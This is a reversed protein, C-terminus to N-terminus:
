RGGALRSASVLSAVALAVLPGGFILPIFAVPSLLGGGAATSREAAKLAFVGYICFLGGFFLCIRHTWCLQMALRPSPHWLRFGLVMMWVGGVVPMVIQFSLVLVWVVRAGRVSSFGHGFLRGIFVSFLLLALGVIVHALALCRLFMRSRTNM